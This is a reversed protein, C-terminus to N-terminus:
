REFYLLEQVDVNLTAAVTGINYRNISNRKNSAIESIVSPMLGCKDALEKQTMGREKLIETLRVKLILM